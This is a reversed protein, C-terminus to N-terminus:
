LKQENQWMRSDACIYVFTFSDITDSKAKVTDRQERTKFRGVVVAKSGSDSSSVASDYICSCIHVIGMRYM